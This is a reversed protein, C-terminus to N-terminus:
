YDQENFEVICDFIGTTGTVDASSLVVSKMNTHASNWSSDATPDESTREWKFVTAPLSSTIDKNGKFVRATLTTSITNNFVNGASSDTVLTFVSEAAKLRNVTFVQTITPRGSRTAKFTVIATDVLIKTVTFKAGTLKGTVESSDYEVTITWDPTEDVNGSSIKLETVAGTYSGKNGYSDTLITHNANTLYSTIGDAGVFGDRVRSIYTRDTIGLYTGEVELTSYTGMDEPVLQGQTRLTLPTRDGSASIGYVKITPEVDPEGGGYTNSITLVQNPEPTNSSTYKFVYGSLLLQYYVADAGRAKFWTYDTPNDSDEEVTDYYIGMYIGPTSGANSTFTLGNDNSYRIHLRSSVGDFYDVGKIPTYGNLGDKGDTVVSVTQEDLLANTDAERLSIKISKLNKSPTYSHTAKTNGSNNYVELFDTGNSSEEIYFVAPYPYTVGNGSKVSSKLELTSPNYVGLSDKNLAATSVSLWKLEVDQGAKAAKQRTVTFRRTLSPYGDATATLDVWASDVTIQTVELRNKVLTVELGKSHSETFTWDATVDRSGLYVLMQTVASDYIGQKGESNTPIVASDNDLMASVASAGEPGPISLIVKQLDLQATYYALWKARFEDGNLSINVNKKADTIDWAVIKNGGVTNLYDRLNDWATAVAKMEPTNENIGLEKASTRATYYDGTGASDLRLSNPLVEDILETSTSPYYGIIRALDGALLIRDSLSLKNDDAISGLTETITEISKALGSDLKKVDLEQIQWSGNKYVKLVNGGDRTDIWVQGEVTSSPQVGSIIADSLDTLSIRDLGLTAGKPDLVEVTLFGTSSITERSISIQKGSKSFGPDLTNDGRYLRWQYQYTYNGLDSDIEEGAQYVKATYTNAGSGNKFVSSGLLSVAYPDKLDSLDVTLRIPGGLFSSVVLFTDTGTIQSPAIELTPSTSGKITSDARDLLKRWGAGSNVDGPADPDLIYWQYFSGRVKNLGKYIDLTALLKKTANRSTTGNPTSIIPMISDRGDLVVPLIEEDLKVAQDLGTFIEIRLLSIDPNPAYTINEELSTSLYTQEYGTGEPSLSESVRFCVPKGVLASGGATYLAKITLTAPSYAGSDSKKIVPSSTSINTTSGDAGHKIKALSFTKSISPRGARSATLVVEGFEGSFTDLTYTNGVLTGRVGSSETKSYTYNGSVDIIGDYISLTTAVNSFKTQKFDSVALYKADNSLSGLVADRGSSGNVLKNVELTAMGMYTKKTAPDDYTIYCYIRISQDTSFINKSITLTKVRGSGLKFTDTSETIDLLTGFSNRQYAWRISTASTILDESKGEVLLQPTIVLPDVGYDPLYKSTDPDYIVSSPKNPNLLAMVRRGDTLDIITIQASGRLKLEAM